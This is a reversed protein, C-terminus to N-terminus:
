GPLIASIGGQRKAHGMPCFTGTYTEAMELSSVWVAASVIRSVFANGDTHPLTQRAEHM